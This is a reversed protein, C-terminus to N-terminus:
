SQLSPPEGGGTITIRPKNLGHLRYKARIIDPGMAVDYLDQRGDSGRSNMPLVLTKPLRIRGGYGIDPHYGRERDPRDHVEQGGRHRVPVERREVM